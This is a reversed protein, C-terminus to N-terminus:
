AGPVAKRFRASEESREEYGLAAYFRQAEERARLSTVEVAVCGHRVAWREVAEMLRRGVGARRHEADVSLAVVRAFAGPREFYLVRQVAVVGAVDADAEAVLVTGEPSVSWARLREAAQDREQPYGLPSLLEAIRATDRPGALRIGDGYQPPCRFDPELLAMTLGDWYGGSGLTSDRARGEVVFGVARYCAIAATNFTYVGLQLRHLELDGFAHRALERMLATGLGRGRRRPAVAVRGIHGLRHRHNVELRVHGVMEGAADTAAFMLETPGAAALDRRLQGQDLPWTFSRAGSWQYMADESDIWSLLRECDEPAFARLALTTPLGSM